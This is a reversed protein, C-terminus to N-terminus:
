IFEAKLTSMKTTWDIFNKRHVEKSLNTDSSVTFHTAASGLTYLVELLKLRLDGVPQGWSDVQNPQWTPFWCDITLPLLTKDFVHYPIRFMRCFLKAQQGDPDSECEEKKEPCIIM